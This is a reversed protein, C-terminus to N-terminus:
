RFLHAYRRLLDPVPIDMQESVGLLGGTGVRVGELCSDLAVMLQERWDYPLDEAYYALDPEADMLKQRAARDRAAKTIRGDFLALRVLEVRYLRGADTFVAEVLRLDGEGRSDDWPQGSWANFVRKQTVKELCGDVLQFYRVTPM